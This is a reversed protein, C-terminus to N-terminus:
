EAVEYREKLVSCLRGCFYGKLLSCGSFCVGTSLYTCSDVIKVEQLILCFTYGDLVHTNKISQLLYNFKNKALIFTLLLVFLLLQDSVLIIEM